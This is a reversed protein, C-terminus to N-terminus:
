TCFGAPEAANHAIDGLALFCLIFDLFHEVGEALDPCFLKVHLGTNDAALSPALGDLCALLIAHKLHKGRCSHGVSFELGMDCFELCPNLPPSDSGLELVVGKFLTCLNQILPVKVATEAPLGDSPDGILVFAMAATGGPPSVNPYGVAHGIHRPEHTVIDDDVLKGVQNVGIVASIEPIEYIGIGPGFPRSSVQHGQAQLVVITGLGSLSHHFQYSM